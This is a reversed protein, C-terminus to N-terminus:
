SNCYLVCVVKRRMCDFENYVCWLSALGTSAAHSFGSGLPSSKRWNSSCLMELYATTIANM